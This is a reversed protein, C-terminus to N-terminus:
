KRKEDNYVRDFLTIFAQIRSAPLAMLKRNNNRTWLKNIQM